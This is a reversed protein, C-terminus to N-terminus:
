RYKIEVMTKEYLRQNMELAQEKENQSIYLNDKAELDRWIYVKYVKRLPQSKWDTVSDLFRHM